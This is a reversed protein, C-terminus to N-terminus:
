REIISFKIDSWGTITNLDTNYKFISSVRDGPYFTKTATTGTRPDHYIASFFFNANIATMMAVYQANTLYKWGLTIKIKDAIKDALLYGNANRKTDVGVIDSLGVEYTSPNPLVESGIQILAM